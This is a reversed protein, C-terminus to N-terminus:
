PEIEELTHCNNCSFEGTMTTPDFRPVQLLDAMAPVVENFMFDTWEQREPHEPDGVWELFGEESAPLPAIAPSPMAYAREVADDGHCTTCDFTEYKADYAVFVEKMRPMVVTTMYATREEFTMDKWAVQDPEGGGAGGDGAGDAGGGGAGDAGGGGAGGDDAGGDDAGGCAAVFLCAAMSIRRMVARGRRTWRDSRTAHDPPQADTRAENTAPEATNM